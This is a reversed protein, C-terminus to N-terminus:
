EHGNNAGIGERSVEYSGNSDAHIELDTRTLLRLAEKPVGLLVISKLADQLSYGERLHGRVMGVVIEHQIKVSVEAEIQIPGGEPGTHEMQLKENYQRTQTKLWLSTSWNDGRKISEVLKIEALATIDKRAENQVRVLEPYRELYFHITRRSCQLTKATPMVLGSNKRLAWAIQEVTYKNQGFLHASHIPPTDGNGGICQEPTSM